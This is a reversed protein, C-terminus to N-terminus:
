QVSRLRREYFRAVYSTPLSLILYLVLAIVFFPLPNSGYRDRWVDLKTTIEAGGIVSIIASDKLMYILDNVFPPIMLPIAQPFIIRSFNQVPTLGLSIAAETQGRDVSLFGARFVEAEYAAYNLALTGIGATWTNIYISLGYPQLLGSLGFYIIFIQAIMPTSRIVEVYIRAPVKLWTIRSNSMLALLLGLLLAIPFSTVCFIVTNKAGDLFDLLVVSYQPM